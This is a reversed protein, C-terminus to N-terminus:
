IASDEKPAARIGLMVCPLHDVWKVCCTRAKLANKLQRHFPEVLGNSQPHYAITAVHKIRLTRCLVQWIESTFQVVTTFLHTYGERSDPLPGVLDVHLHAFRGSPTSFAQVPTHIHRFIKRHACGQCDRCWAAVESTM